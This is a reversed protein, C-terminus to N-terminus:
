ATGGATVVVWPVDVRRSGGHGTVVSDAFADDASVVVFLLGHRERAYQVIGKLVDRGLRVIGVRHGREALSRRALEIGAQLGAEPLDTLVDLDADLRECANHAYRLAGAQLRGQVALAIRRCSQVTPHPPTLPLRAATVGLIAEKEQQPLYEGLDAYALGDIARGLSALFGNRTSM